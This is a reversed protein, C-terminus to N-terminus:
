DKDERGKLANIIPNYQPFQLDFIEKAGYGYQTKAKTQLNENIYNQTGVNGKYWVFPGSAGQSGIRMFNLFIQAMGALGILAVLIIIWLQNPNKGLREGVRLFFVLLTIATWSILVTGYWLIASGIIWWIIWGALTTISLAIFDKERLLLAVPLSILLLIFILIWAFGIDTYYSSHNQLSRNFVINLPVISRYPISISTADSKIAHSQYYQRLAVSHDRFDSATYSSANVGERADFDEIAARVLIGAESNQDKLENAYIEKLLSIDFSDIAEANNCLIKADHNFGYCTESVPFFLKM